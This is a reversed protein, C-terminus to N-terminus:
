LEGARHSRRRAGGQEGLQIKGRGADLQGKANALEAKGADLEAKAADLKAQGANIQAEAEDLKAQGEALDQEAQALKAEGEAIQQAGSALQAQGAEYEAILSSISYGSNGLSSEYAARQAEVAAWLALSRTNDGADRAAQYDAQTQLYRDYLPKVTDYIPQVAALRAEGAAYEAKAAELQAQGAEYEAQGQAPQRRVRPMSRRPTPLSPAAPTMSRRRSRVALEPMGGGANYEAEGEALKDEGVTDTVAHEAFSFATGDLTTPPRGRQRGARHLSDLQKTWRSIRASSSM